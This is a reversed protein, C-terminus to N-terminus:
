RHFITLVNSNAIPGLFTVCTIDYKEAGLLSLEREVSAVGRDDTVVFLLNGGVLKPVPLTWDEMQVSWVYCTPEELLEQAPEPM